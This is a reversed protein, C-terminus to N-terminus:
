QSFWERVGAAAASVAAIIGLLWVFVRVALKGARTTRLIADIEHARPKQGELPPKFLYDHIEKVREESTATAQHRIRALEEDTM